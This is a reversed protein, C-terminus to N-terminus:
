TSKWWFWEYYTEIENNFGYDSDPSVGVPTPTTTITSVKGDSDPGIIYFDTIATNIISSDNIPGYFNTRMEFDLSYIITRRQELSAEFDDTFTVGQIAISIDEKVTPYDNFPKFSLTYQPNFYPLVQEVVQLADDQTKAYVNVQFSILYPAPTFFKTSSTNSESNVRFNNTKPLKREADYQLSTIEFSMRPLKLAVKTDNYLDPNSQLRAIYKDKPAYALPVKIQSNSSGDNNKRVVYINNFLSGFISVSKRIRQHYFYEFM